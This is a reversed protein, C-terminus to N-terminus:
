EENHKKSDPICPMLLWLSAACVLLIGLVIFLMVYTQPGDLVAGCIPPSILQLVGNFFLSIGYTSQLRDEGLMDTMIVATVGTYAGSSIGFVVCCCSVFVFNPYMPLFALALGSILLGGIYYGLKPCCQLDSLASGGIRGILDFTSVISLLLAGNTKGFNQMLAYQPLIILFNTYSVANIGSSVMIILYIPDKLLALDIFKKKPPENLKGQSGRISFSSAFVEPQLTLASGHYPTTIYQFSSTSPSRKPPLSHKPLRLRQMTGDNVQTSHSTCAPVSIKREVTGLSRLTQMATSSASRNFKRSAESFVTDSLMSDAAVSASEDIQNMSKMTSTVILEQPKDDIEESEVSITKMHKEVPDYFLAAVWVNLILGGIILCTGRYGYEELITRLLPPLIISGLASGSICIGNAVGRLRNFYSTVIYVTPPFALGAGTGVFVGVTVYVYIINQAFTTCIMGVAAFSGGILTVTRYSYKLSLISSVPGLSSYLFYCLSPIWMATAPSTRFVELFEVLLIGFSKITGPILVNVLTAGLLVLWGWGGDPPVRKTRKKADEEEIIAVGEYWLM